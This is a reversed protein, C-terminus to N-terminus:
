QSAGLKRLLEEAAKTASVAAAPPPGGRGRGSVMTLALPTQGAKNKADLAAGSDASAIGFGRALRQDGAVVAIAAGPVRAAKLEAEIDAAVDSATPRQSAAALVVLTFLAPVGLWKMVLITADKPAITNDAQAARVGATVGM